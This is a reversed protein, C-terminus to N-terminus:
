PDKKAYYTVTCEPAGPLCQATSTHRFETIKDMDSLLGIRDEIIKLDQQSIAPSATVTYVTGLERVEADVIVTAARRYITSCDVIKGLALGMLGFAWMAIRGAEELDVYDLTEALVLMGKSEREPTLSGYAGGYLM